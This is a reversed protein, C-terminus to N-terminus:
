QKLLKVVQTNKGDTLSLFYVGKALSTLPLTTDVNTVEVGFSQQQMLSGSLSRLEMTAFSGAIKDFSFHVEDFAPNPYVILKSILQNLDNTAVTTSFYTTATNTRIAANYDFYIDAFNGITTFLPVANVYKVRYKVFGQSGIPDSLSDPLMINNFRFEAVNGEKINFDLNPHSKSIIEFSTLDLMSSMTDIMIVNYAVDNGVNQFHIIYELYDSGTVDYLTDANVEKYNPDYPGTVVASSTQTNNSPTEDNLTPSIAATSQIMTGIAANTPINFQAFLTGSQQPILLGLDWTISQGSVSTAAPSTGLYSMLAAAQLTVSANQSVTGQNTYTILYTLVFGAKPATIPTIDIKLDKINPVPVLGFVNATDLNGMGAFNINISAPTSLTHYLPINPISVSQSGSATFLDYIGSNNSATVAPGGNLALIVNPIGIEGTNMQGDGNVDTFVTGEIINANDSLKVLYGGASLNVVNGGMNFTGSGWGTLFLDDNNNV